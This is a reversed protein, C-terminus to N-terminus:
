RRIVTARETGFGDASNAIRSREHRMLRDFWAMMPDCMTAKYEDARVNERHVPDYVIAIGDWEDSHRLWAKRAAEDRASRHRVTRPM